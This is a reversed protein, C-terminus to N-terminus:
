YRWSRQAPRSIVITVWIQQLVHFVFSSFGGNMFGERVLVEKYGEYTDQFLPVCLLGMEHKKPFYLVQAFNM